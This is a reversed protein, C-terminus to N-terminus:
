TGTEYLDLRATRYRLFYARKRTIKYDTAFLQQPNEDLQDKYELCSIKASFASQKHAPHRTHWHTRPSGSSEERCLTM